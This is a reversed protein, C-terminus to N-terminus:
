GAQRTTKSEQVLQEIEDLDVRILKSGLRYETIKGARLWRYITDRSADVQAGAATISALRPVVRVEGLISFTVKTRHPRRRSRQLQAAFVSM